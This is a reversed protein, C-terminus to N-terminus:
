PVFGDSSHDPFDLEALLNPTQGASSPRKDHGEFSPHHVKFNRRLADYLGPFPIGAVVFSTLQLRFPERAGTWILM